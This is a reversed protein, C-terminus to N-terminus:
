SQIIIAKLRCVHLKKKRRVYTHSLNIHCLFEYARADWIIFLMLKMENGSRPAGQAQSGSSSDNFKILYSASTLYLQRHNSVSIFAEHLISFLRTKWTKYNSNWKHLQFMISGISVSILEEEIPKLSRCWRYFIFYFYSFTNITFPWLFENQYM